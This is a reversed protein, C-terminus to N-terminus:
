LGDLHTEMTLAMANDAGVGVFSAPRTIDVALVGGGAVRAATILLRQM